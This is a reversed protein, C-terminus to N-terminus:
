CGMKMLSADLDEQMSDASLIVRHRGQIQGGAAFCLSGQDVLKAASSDHVGVRSLSHMLVRLGCHTVKLDNCAERGIRGSGEAKM